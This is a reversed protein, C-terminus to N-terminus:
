TFVSRHLKGLVTECAGEEVVPALPFREMLDAFLGVGISEPVGKDDYVKVREM